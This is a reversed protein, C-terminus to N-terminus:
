TIVPQKTTRDSYIKQGKDRILDATEQPYKQWQERWFDSDLSKDCDIAYIEYSRQANFKARLIINRMISDLPNRERPQDKLLRMLNEREHLEYQTIPIISEIGYIDWVFVFANKTM